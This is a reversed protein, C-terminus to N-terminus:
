AIAVVTFGVSFATSITPTIVGYINLNVSDVSAQNLSVINGTAAFTAGWDPRAFGAIFLPVKGLGHPLTQQASAQANANWSMVPFFLAAKMAPGQAPTVTFLAGPGITVTVQISLLDATLDDVMTKLGSQDSFSM